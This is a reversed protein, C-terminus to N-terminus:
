RHSDSRVVVREIQASWADRTMIVDVTPSVRDHPYTIGSLDTFFPQMLPRYGATTLQWLIAQGYQYEVYDEPSFTAAYPTPSFRLTM